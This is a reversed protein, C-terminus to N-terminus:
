DDHDEEIEDKYRQARECPDLEDTYHVLELNVGEGELNICLKEDSRFNIKDARIKHYFTGEASVSVKEEYERGGFLRGCFVTLKLKQGPIFGSGKLYYFREKYSNSSWHPDGAVSLSLRHDAEDSTEIPYPVVCTEVDHSLDKEQYMTFKIEEGLVLDPLIILFPSPEDECVLGNEGIHDIEGITIIENNDNIIGRYTLFSEYDGRCSREINISFIVNEPLDKPIVKLITYDLESYTKKIRAYKQIEVSEGNLNAVTLLLTFTSLMIYKFFNM